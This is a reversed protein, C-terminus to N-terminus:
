YGRDKPYDYIKVTIKNMLEKHERKDIGLIYVYKHKHPFEYYEANRQKERGM